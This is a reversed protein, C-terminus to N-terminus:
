RGGGIRTMAVQVGRDIEAAIQQRNEMLAPKLYPYPKTGPHNVYAVPHRAGPWYLARKNKPYIVHPGTGEELGKAYVVNYVGVQGIIADGVRIAPKFVIANKLRGTRVRVRRRADNQVIIQGRTVAKTLEQTLIAPGNAYNRAMLAIESVDFDLDM